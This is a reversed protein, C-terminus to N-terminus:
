RAAPAVLAGEIGNSKLSDAVFGSAKMSEVFAAVYRAGAAHGKPTAMAQNITMFAGDLLRVAPVRKADAQLQQKVSAAVEFGQAVIADTVAASTPVRVIQAHKLERSLYLDYASGTAVVVRVGRPEGTTADRTPLVPNGFNIAARLTGTPALDALVAAALTDARTAPTSLCSGLLAAIVLGDRFRRTLGRCAHSRKRLADHPGVSAANVRL